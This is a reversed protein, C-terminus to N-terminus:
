LMPKGLTQLQRNGAIGVRFGTYFATDRAIRERWPKRCPSERCRPDRCNVTSMSSTAIFRLVATELRECCGSTTACAGTPVSSAHVLQILRWRVRCLCVTHYWTFSLTHRGYLHSMRLIDVVENFRNPVSLPSPHSFLTVRTSGKPHGMAVGACIVSGNGSVLAVMEKRHLQLSADVIYTAAQWFM